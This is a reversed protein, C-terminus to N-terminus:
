KEEKIKFIKYYIIYYYNKWNWQFFEIIRKLLSTRRNWEKVLLDEFTPFYDKFCMEFDDKSYSLTECDCDFCSVNWLRDKEVILKIDEKSCGVYGRRTEQFHIEYSGCFPCRKLKYKKATDSKFFSM